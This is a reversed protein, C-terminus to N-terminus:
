RLRGQATPTRLTGSATVARVTGRASPARVAAALIRASAPVLDDDVEVVGALSGTLRPLVAALTGSGTPVTVTGSIAGSVGPLTGGLTGTYAPGAITGLMTGTLPSLQGDIDGTWTPAAVTGDLTGVIRPLVGSLSAAGSPSTVTGSITSRTPPIAATLTGSYVPPTVTGSLSGTTKPLSGSTTGSYTPPTVTGAISGTAAPTTAELTGTYAPGAGAEAVLWAVNVAMAQEVATASAFDLTSSTATGGDRTVTAVTVGPRYGSTLYRECLKTVPATWTYPGSTANGTSAGIITVCWRSGATPTISPTTYNALNSTVVSAGSTSVGLPSADMNDLMVLTYASLETSNIRYQVTTETGDSIKWWVYFGLNGEEGDLYTWGTSEPRNSGSTARYDNTAAALILVSESAQATFNVTTTATSSTGGTVEVPTPDAM